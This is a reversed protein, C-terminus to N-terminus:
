YLLGDSQMFTMRDCMEAEIEKFICAGLYFRNEDDEALDEPTLSYKSLYRRVEEQVAPALRTFHYGDDDELYARSFSLQVIRDGQRYPAKGWMGIAWSTSDVSHWPYRKVARISTVAFGHVKVKPTGDPNCIYKRFCVDLWDFLAESVGLQAVGGIGIYECEEVMRALFEEPEGFHYVPLSSVGESRMTLYNEWSADANGIVDLSAIAKWTDHTSRCFHIFEKLNIEVGSNFASYAGSDLFLDFGRDVLAQVRPALIPPRKRKIYHYSFLTRNAVTAWRETPDTPGGSLYLYGM